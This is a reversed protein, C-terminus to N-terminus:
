WQNSIPQTKSNQKQGCIGSVRIVKFTHKRMFTITEDYTPLTVAHSQKIVKPIASTIKRHLVLYNLDYKKLLPKFLIHASQILSVM